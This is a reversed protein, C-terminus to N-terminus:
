PCKTCARLSDPAPAPPATPEEQGATPLRLPPPRPLRRPRRTPPRRTRRPRGRRRRLRPAGSSEEEQAQVAAPRGGRSRDRGRGPAPAVPIVGPPPQDPEKEPTRIARIRDVSLMFDRWIEAPYTGGAVPEGRYETEMPGAAQRPLRGLGGGDDHRQLRRVLCGPLEGDHRDQRRRLRRHRREQRHREIVVTQLIQTAQSAVGEPIARESRTDNEDDIGPARWRRTPSPGATTPRWRDRQRPQRWPRADPLLRAIELPTVGTKLGGLVMAPNTSITPGSAWGSRWARSRRRASSSTASRRTSPTTRSRPRPPWRPVGAYRDEYNEVKFEGRPGTLTKPASVFTRGPSIGKELAAVLTFPKFASGPQRHGQTALNFPSSRSTPGASWRGSAAPRTTSRSWRRRRASAPSGGSLRSPRTRSSSTSRRASRSAAASPPAPETATSWSSSSGPPSTPRGQQDQAAPQDQQPPPLAQKRRDAYECRHSCTQSRAHPRAGPQAARACRRPEADPQIGLALRDHGGAAGGRGSGAGRACHPECGPHNWGFYVRAASEIGYAGEGFYVTNLYQTLIKDKTWKRELQYALAAEKLKQFM